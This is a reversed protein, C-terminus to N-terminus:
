KAPFIRLGELPDILGKSVLLRAFSRFSFAFSARLAELKETESTRLGALSELLGRSCHIAEFLPVQGRVGTNGCDSCGRGHFYNNQENTLKSEALRELDAIQPEYRECCETCIRRVLRQRLILSM